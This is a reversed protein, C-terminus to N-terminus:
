AAWVPESEQKQRRLVEISITILPKIQSSISHHLPYLSQAVLESSWLEMGLISSRLYFSLILEQFNDRGEM